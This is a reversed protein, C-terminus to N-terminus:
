EDDEEDDHGHNSPRTGYARVFINPYNEANHLVGSAFLRDRSLVLDAVYGWLFAGGSSFSDDWVLEGTRSDYARVAAEYDYAENIMRGGGVYVRGAGAALAEVVWDNGPSMNLDQWLLRGSRADYARVLLKCEVFTEPNCDVAAAAFLQGGAAALDIGQSIRAGVEIRDSWVPAGSRVDYSQVIFDGDVLTGGVFVRNGTVTLADDRGFVDSAGPIEREWVLAGSCADLAKILMTSSDRVELNDPFNGAVFVRDDRAAVAEAMGPLGTVRRDWLLRGSRVDYARVVFLRYPDEVWVPAASDDMPTQVDCVEKPM